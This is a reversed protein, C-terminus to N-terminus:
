LTPKAVLDYFCFALAATAVGWLVAWGAREHPKMQPRALGFIVILEFVVCAVVFVWRSWLGTIAM